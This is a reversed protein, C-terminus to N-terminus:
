TDMSAILIFICSVPSSSLLSFHFYVTLTFWIHFTQIYGISVFPAPFQEFEVEEEEDDLEEVEDGDFSSAKEKGKATKPKKWGSKAFATHDWKRTKNPRGTFLNNQGSSQRQMTSRSGSAGNGKSPTSNPLVGGFLTTQITAGSTSRQVPPKSPGAVAVPAASKRNLAENCLQDIIRLDSDDIEFSGYDYSDDVDIVERVPQTAEPSPPPPAKQPPRRSTASSTTVPAAAAQTQAAEIAELEKLVLPDIEANDFEDFYDSSSMSTSLSSFLSSVNFAVTVFSHSRSIVLADIV